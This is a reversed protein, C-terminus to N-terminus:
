RFKNRQLIKLGNLNTGNWRQEMSSVMQLQQIQQIRALEADRFPVEYNSVSVGPGADTLDAWLPKVPPLCINELVGLGHECVKSIKLCKERRTARNISETNASLDVINYDLVDKIVPIIHSM